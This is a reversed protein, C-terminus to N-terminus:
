SNSRNQRYNMRFVRSPLGDSAGDACPLAKSDQHKIQIVELM